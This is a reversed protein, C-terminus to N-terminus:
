SCGLRGREQEARRKITASADPFESGLQTLTLCADERQNLAALSMGLKLLNDPAKSGTPNMQYGEAFTVAADRYKQRAYYTEALWYQANPALAHDGHNGLFQQLASEANAYDADRLLGFAHDYQEQASGDPLTAVTSRAQDQEPRAAPQDPQRAQGSPEAEATDGASLKSEIESLRYDLDTRLTDLRDRVQSAAFAAEEYKGTLVQIEREMRTLRVEFDAALSSPLGGPAGDARGDLPAPAATGRYVQQNLTQVDTELRNLRNLLTRVDQAQAHVPTLLVAWSMCGGLVAGLLAALPRASLAPVPFAPPFTPSM